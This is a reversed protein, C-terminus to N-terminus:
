TIIGQIMETQNVISGDNLIIKKGGSEGIGVIIYSGRCNRFRFRFANIGALSGCTKTQRYVYNSCSEHFICKRRKSEPILKWYLRICALIILKM